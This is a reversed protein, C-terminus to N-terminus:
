LRPHTAAYGDILRLLTTEDTKSVPWVDISFRMASLAEPPFDSFLLIPGV